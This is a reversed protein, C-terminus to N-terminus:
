DFSTLCTFPLTFCHTMMKYEFSVNKLQQISIKLRTLMETQFLRGWRIKFMQFLNSFFNQTERLIFKRQWQNQKSVIWLSIYYIFACHKWYPDILINWLTTLYSNCINCFRSYHLIKKFVRLHVIIRHSVKMQVEKINKM